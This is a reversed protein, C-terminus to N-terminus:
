QSSNSTTYQISPLFILVYSGLWNIPVQRSGWASNNWSGTNQINIILTGKRQNYQIKVTKLFFYFFPIFLYTLLFYSFILLYWQFCVGKAREQINRPEETCEDWWEKSIKYVVLSQHFYSLTDILQSGKLAHTLRSVPLNLEVFIWWVWLVM